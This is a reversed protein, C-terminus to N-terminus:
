KTTFNLIEDAVKLKKHSLVRARMRPRKEVGGRLISYACFCNKAPSHCTEM